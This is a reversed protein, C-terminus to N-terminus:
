LDIGVAELAKLALAGEPYFASLWNYFNFFSISSDVIFFGIPVLALNAVLSIGDAEDIYKVSWPWIIKFHLILLVLSTVLWVASVGIEFIGKFQVLNLIAETADPAVEILKSTIVDAAQNLREIFGDIGQLATEEIQEKM